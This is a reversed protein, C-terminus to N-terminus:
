SGAFSFKEQHRDEIEGGGWYTMINCHTVDICEKATLFITERQPQIDFTIVSCFGFMINHLYAICRSFAYLVQMKLRNHWM